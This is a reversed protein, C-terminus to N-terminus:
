IRSSGIAACLCGVVAIRAVSHVASETALLAAPMQVQGTSLGALLVVSLGILAFGLYRLGAFLTAKM